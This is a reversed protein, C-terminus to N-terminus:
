RGATASNIHFIVLTLSAGNGVAVLSATHLADVGAELSELREYRMRTALLEALRANQLPTGVEHAVQRALLVLEVFLELYSEFLHLGVSQESLVLALHARLKAM